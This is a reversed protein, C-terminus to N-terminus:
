AVTRMPMDGQAVLEAGSAASLRVRMQTMRVVSVAEDAEGTALQLAEDDPGNRGEILWTATGAKLSIAVPIHTRDTRPVAFWDGTVAGDQATVSLFIKTQPTM